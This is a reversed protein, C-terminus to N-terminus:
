TNLTEQEIFNSSGNVVEFKWIEKRASTLEQELYRFTEQHRAYKQSRCSMCDWQMSNDVFSSSNSACNKTHFSFNCKECIFGSM